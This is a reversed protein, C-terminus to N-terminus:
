VVSKRDLLFFLLISSFLPSYLLLSSFLPSSFLSPSFLSSFFFSSFLTVAPGPTLTQSFQHFHLHLICSSLSIPHSRTSLSILLSSSILCLLILSISLLHFYVSYSSLLCLLLYCFDIVSFVFSSYLSPIDEEVHFFM